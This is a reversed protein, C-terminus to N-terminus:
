TPAISRQIFDYRHIATITVKPSLFEHPFDYGLIVSYIPFRFTLYPLFHINLSLQESIVNSM